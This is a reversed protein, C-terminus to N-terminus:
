LGDARVYRVADNGPRALSPTVRNLPQKVSWVVWEGSQGEHQECSGSISEGM